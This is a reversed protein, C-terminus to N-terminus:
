YPLRKWLCIMRGAVFLNHQIRLTTVTYMSKHLLDVKNEIECQIKYKWKSAFSLSQRPEYGRLSLVHSYQQKLLFRPVYFNQTTNNSFFRFFEVRIRKGGNEFWCEFLVNSSKLLTLFPSTCLRAAVNLEWSCPWWMLCTRGPGTLWKPLSNQWIFQFSILRYYTIKLSCPASM